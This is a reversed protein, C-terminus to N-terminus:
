YYQELHRFCKVLVFWHDNSKQGERDVFEQPTTSLRSLEIIYQQELSPWLSQKFKEAEEKSM